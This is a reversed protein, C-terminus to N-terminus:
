DAYAEEVAARALAPLDLPADSARAAAEAAEATAVRVVWAEATAMRSARAAVAARVASAGAKAARAVGAAAWAAAWAAVAARESRDSGDLWNVAWASWPPCRDCIVAQVCLIGFRVRQATTVAPLSIETVIRLRTSGGKLGHDDRFAGGAEAEFLRPSAFDGHIPNLLAALLPGGYWHLWGPGCLEGRGDTERWEGRV